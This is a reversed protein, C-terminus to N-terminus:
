RVRNPGWIFEDGSGSRVELSRYIYAHAACLLLGILAHLFFWFEISPGLGWKPVLAYGITATSHALSFVTSGTVWCYLVANRKGRFIDQSTFQWHRGSGIAAIGSFVALVSCFAAFVVMAM